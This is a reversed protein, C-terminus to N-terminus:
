SIWVEDPEMSTKSAADEQPQFLMCTYVQWFDSMYHGPRKLCINVLELIGWIM